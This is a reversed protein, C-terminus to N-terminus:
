TFRIFSTSPHTQCESSQLTEGVVPRLVEDGFYDGRGAPVEDKASIFDPLAIHEPIGAQPAQTAQSTLCASTVERPLSRDRPFGIRPCMFQMVPM